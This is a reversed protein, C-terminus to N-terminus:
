HYPFIHIIFFLLMKWEPFCSSTKMPEDLILHSIFFRDEYSSGESQIGYCECAIFTYILRKLM